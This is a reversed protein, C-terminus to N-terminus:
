EDKLRRLPQEFECILRYINSNKDTMMKNVSPYEDTLELKSLTDRAMKAQVPRTWGYFNITYTKKESKWWHKITREFKIKKDELTYEVGVEKLGDCFEKTTIDLHYSHDKKATLRRLIYAITKIESDDSHKFKKWVNEYKTSLSSEAVSLVLSEFKKFEQTPYYGNKQLHFLLILLATRKNGDYFAHDKVLGFFLTSCIDMKDTYKKRGGYEVVQRGLASGLLNYDRVGVLMEERNEASPDTFYDALIYHAKLVDEVQICDLDFTVKEGFNRLDENYMDEFQTPLNQM